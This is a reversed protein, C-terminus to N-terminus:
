PPRPLERQLREERAARQVDRREEAALEPGVGAAEIRAEDLAPLVPVKPETRGRLAPAAGANWLHEDVVPPARCAALLRCARGADARAEHSREDRLVAREVLPMELVREGRHVLLPRRHTQGELPHVVM